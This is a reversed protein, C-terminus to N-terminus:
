RTEDIFRKPTAKALATHASLALNPWTWCVGGTLEDMIWFLGREPVGEAV